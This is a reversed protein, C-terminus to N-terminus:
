SCGADSALLLRAGDLDRPEGLRRQPIREIVRQGVPTRWLSRNM